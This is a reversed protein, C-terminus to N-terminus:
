KPIHAWRAPKITATFDLLPDDQITISWEGNYFDACYHLTSTSGYDDNHDWILEVLYRGNEKPQEQSTQKWFQLEWLRILDKETLSYTTM